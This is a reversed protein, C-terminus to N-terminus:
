TKSGETQVIGTNTVTVPQTGPKSNSGSSINSTNETSTVREEEPFDALGM